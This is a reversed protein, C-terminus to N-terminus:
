FKLRNMIDATETDTLKLPKLWEKVRQKTASVNYSSSSTKIATDSVTQDKKVKDINEQATKVLQDIWEKRDKAPEATASKAIEPSLKGGSVYAAQAGELSTNVEGAEKTLKAKKKGLDEIAKAAKLQDETLYIGHQSAHYCFQFFNRATKSTMSAGSALIALLTVIRLQNTTLYQHMEEIVASLLTGDIVSPGWQMTFFFVPVASRWYEVASPSLRQTVVGIGSALVAAGLITKTLIPNCNNAVAVGGGLAVAAVQKVPIKSCVNYVASGVKQIVGLAGTKSLLWYGGMVISTEKPYYSFAVGAAVKGLSYAHDKWTQNPPVPVTM